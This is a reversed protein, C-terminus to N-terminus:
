VEARFAYLGFPSSGHAYNGMRGATSKAAVFIAASYTLRCVTYM